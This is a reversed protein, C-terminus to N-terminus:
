EAEVTVRNVRLNAYDAILGAMQRFGIKGGELVPGTEEGDDYWELVVLDNISFRFHPGYKIVQIRYPGVVDRVSPIPDGAAAVFHFGYSKRLHVTQFSREELPEGHFNRRFYAIHLADIDGSNYQPYAGTREALSPDFLDEGERGRAAIWFMALGDDSRPQFDWSVAINDPFEEPCWLLFHVDSELRMRGHPFTVAPHGERSSETVWAAIDEPGSLPNEYLIEGIEYEMTRAKLAALTFVSFFFILAFRVAYHTTKSHM